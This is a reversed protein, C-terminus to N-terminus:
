ARTDSTMGLEPDANAIALARSLTREAATIDTETGLPTSPVDDPSDVEKDLDGDSSDRDYETDTDFPLERSDSEDDGAHSSVNFSPSLRSVDHLGQREALSVPSSRTKKDSWSAYPLANEKLGENPGPGACTSLTSAVIKPHPVRLGDIELVVRARAAIMSTASPGLIIVVHTKASRSKCSTVNTRPHSASSQALALATFSPVLQASLVDFSSLLAESKKNPHEGARAQLAM